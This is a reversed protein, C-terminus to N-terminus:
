VFCSKRALLKESGVKDVTSYEFRASHEAGQGMQCPCVHFCSFFSKCKRLRARSFCAQSILSALVCPSKGVKTNWYFFNNCIEDQWGKEWRCRHGHFGCLVKCHLLEWCFQFMEKKWLHYIPLVFLAGKMILQELYFFFLFIALWTNLKLFCLTVASCFLVGVQYNLTALMLSHSVRSSFSCTNVRVTIEIFSSSYALKM